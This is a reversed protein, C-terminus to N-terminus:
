RLIFSGFVLIMEGVGPGISRRGVSTGHPSLTISSVTEGRGQQEFDANLLVTRTWAKGCRHAARARQVIDRQEENSKLTDRCARSSIQVSPAHAILDPEHLNSVQRDIIRGVHVRPRTDVGVHCVGKSLLVRDFKKM